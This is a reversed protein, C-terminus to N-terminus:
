IIKSFRFNQTFINTIHYLYILGEGKLVFFNLASSALVNVKHGAISVIKHCCSLIVEICLDYFTVNDESIVEPISIKIDSCIQFNSM